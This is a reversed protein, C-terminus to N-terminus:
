RFSTSIFQHSCILYSKIRLAILLQSILSESTIRALPPSMVCKVNNPDKTTTRLFCQQLRNCSKNYALAIILQKNAKTENRM